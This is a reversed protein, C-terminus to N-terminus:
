RKMRAIYTLPKVVRDAEEQRAQREAELRKQERRITKRIDTRASPTYRFAPNLISPMTLSRM